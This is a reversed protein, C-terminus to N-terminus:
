CFSRDKKKEEAKSILGSLKDLIALEDSEGGGRGEGCSFFITCLLPMVVLRKIYKVLIVMFFSFSLKLDVGFLKM